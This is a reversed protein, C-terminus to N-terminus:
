VPAGDLVKSDLSDLMGVRLELKFSREVRVGGEEALLRSVLSESSESSESSERMINDWVM